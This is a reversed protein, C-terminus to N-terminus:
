MLEEDLSEAYSGILGGTAPKVEAPCTSLLIRNPSRPHSFSPGDYLHIRGCLFFMVAM